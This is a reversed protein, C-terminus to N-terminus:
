STMPSESLGYKALAKSWLGQAKLVLEIVERIAGCGGNATTVMHAVAQVEERADGVACALGCRMMLPADTFDDGVFAVQEDTLNADRLIREYTATKELFGQFVYTINLIRAREVTGPSERGSIVGSKLGMAHLMHFGLGDQSNFGKSEVMKGDADPFYYLLGNTMTGDVDMLILKIKAARDHVDATYKKM